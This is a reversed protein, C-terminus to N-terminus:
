WKSGKPPPAPSNPIPSCRPWRFGALPAAALGTLVRRRAFQTM